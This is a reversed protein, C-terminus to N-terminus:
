KIFASEQVSLLRELCEYYDPLIVDPAANKLATRQKESLAVMPFLGGMLSYVSLAFTDKRQRDTNPYQRDIIEDLTRYVPQIAQKYATLKEISSGVEIRTYDVSMLRLFRERGRLSSVITASVQEKGESQLLVERWALFEKKLVDLLAEEKTQYYHYITPRAFSTRQSIAKFHVADFGGADYLDEAASLIEGQRQDIQEATRARQFDM